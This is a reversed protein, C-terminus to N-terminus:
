PNPTKSPAAADTEEFSRTRWADATDSGDLRRPETGTVATMVGGSVTPGAFGPVAECAEGCPFFGPEPGFVAVRGEPFFCYWVPRPKSPILPASLAQKWGTKPVFLLGKPHRGGSTVIDALECNTISSTFVAPFIQVVLPCTTFNKVRVSKKV